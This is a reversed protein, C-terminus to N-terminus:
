GSARGRSVRRRHRASVPCDASERRVRRGRRHRATADPHASPVGESDVVPGVRARCQGDATMWQEPTRMTRREARGRRWRRRDGDRRREGRRDRGDAGRDPDVEVLPGARVLGPLVAVEVAVVGAVGFAADHREADGELAELGAVVRDVDVVVERGAAVLGVVEERRPVDRVRGALDAGARAARDRRHARRHRRWRAERERRVSVLGVPQRDAAGLCVRRAGRRSVMQPPVIVEIAPGPGRRSRRVAVAGGVEEHSELRGAIPPGARTPRGGRGTRTSPCPSHRRGRRRPSPRPRATACASAGARRPRCCSGPGCCGASRSRRRAAAAPGPAASAEGSRARCRGSRARRRARGGSRRRRAALRGRPARRHRRRRHRRVRRDWGARRRDRAQRWRRRAGAVAEGRDAESPPAPRTAAIAM